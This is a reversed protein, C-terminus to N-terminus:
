RGGGSRGMTSEMAAMRRGNDEVAVRMARTEVEVTQRLTGLEIAQDSITQRLGRLEVVQDAVAQRQRDVANTTDRLVDLTKGGEATATRAQVQWDDGRKTESTLHAGWGKLLAAFLAAVALAMVAAAWAWSDGTAPPIQLPLIAIALTPDITM